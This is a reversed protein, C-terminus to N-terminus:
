REPFGLHWGRVAQSPGQCYPPGPTGDRHVQLEAWSRSFTTKRDFIRKDNPHRRGAKPGATHQGAGHSSPRQNGQAWRSRPQGRDEETAPCHWPSPYRMPKPWHTPFTSGAREAAQPERQRGPFVLRSCQGRWRGAPSWPGWHPRLGPEDNLLLYLWRAGEGDPGPVARLACRRRTNKTQGLPDLHTGSGQSVNM